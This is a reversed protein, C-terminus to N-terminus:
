ILSEHKAGKHDALAKNLACWTNMAFEQIMDSGVFNKRVVAEGCGGRVLNWLSKQIEPFFPHCHRDAGM